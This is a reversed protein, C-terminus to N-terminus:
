FINIKYKIIQISYFEIYIYIYIHFYLAKYKLPVYVGGNLWFYGFYQHNQTDVLDLIVNSSCNECSSINCNFYSIPLFKLFIRRLM